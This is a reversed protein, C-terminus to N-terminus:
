NGKRELLERLTGVFAEIGLNANQRSHNTWLTLQRLITENLKDPLLLIIPTKRTREDVRFAELMRFGDANPMFLDLIVLDPTRQRALVLGEFGSTATKIEGQFAVALVETAM